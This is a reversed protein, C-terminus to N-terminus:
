ASDSQRLDSACEVGSSMLHRACAARSTHGRGRHRRAWRCAEAAENDFDLEGIGFPNEDEGYESLEFPPVEDIASHDPADDVGAGPPMHDSGGELSAEADTSPHSCKLASKSRLFAFSLMGDDLASASPDVALERGDMDAREAMNGPCPRRFCVIARRWGGMTRAHIIGEAQTQTEGRQQFAFYPRLM